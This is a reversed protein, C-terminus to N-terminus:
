FYAAEIWTLFDPPASYAGWAPDPTCGWGFDFKNCKPKLVHCRIAVIKITKRLILKGFKTCNSCYQPLDSWANKQEFCSKKESYDVTFIFLKFV